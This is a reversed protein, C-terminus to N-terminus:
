RRAEVADFTAADEYLSDIADAEERPDVMVKKSYPRLFSWFAQRVNETM